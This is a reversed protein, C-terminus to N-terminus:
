RAGQAHEDHYAISHLNGLYCGSCRPHYGRWQPHDPAYFRRVDASHDGSGLRLRLHTQGDSGIYDDAGRTKCASIRWADRRGYCSQCFRHGSILDEETAPKGCRSCKHKFNDM